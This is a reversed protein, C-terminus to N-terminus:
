EVLLAQYYTTAVSRIQACQKENINPGSAMINGPGGEHPLLFFHGLEHTTIDVAGPGDLHQRGIMSHMRAISNPGNLWTWTLAYLNVGQAVFAFDGAITIPFAEDSKGFGNPHIKQAITTMDAESNPPFPIELSSVPVELIQRTVFQVGCQLYVQNVQDMLKVLREDAIREKGSDSVLNRIDVRLKLIPLAAQGQAFALLGGLVIFTSLIMTRFINMCGELALLIGM